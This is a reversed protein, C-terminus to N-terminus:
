VSHELQDSDTTLLTQAIVQLQPMIKDEAEKKLSAASRYDKRMGVHALNNRLDSLQGWLKSIEQHNALTQFSQDFKSPGHPIKKQLLALGNNLAFRVQKRDELLHHNDLYYSTMSILWEGALTMAQVIQGRKMYWDIMQFQLWLNQTLKETDLNDALSFQGYGDLLQDAILAFPKARQDIGTDAQKFIAEMQEALTLTELPRALAIAQSIEAIIKAIQELQKALPRVTPNQAKETGPIANNLLDALPAGDGVKVFRDTAAIWDLLSLMPLLDYTPAPQDKANPDFAGYVLGEVQVQRVTRLYSIALLAIVPLSRFSHTLDFVVRDGHNLCNTIKDFIIWNDEPAHSEPIDFIPELKVKNGIREQLAEWNSRTANRPAQTAVTKTLLVYLTDVDYFDLLAEQFFPTTSTQAPNSPHIYTVEQYSNFGLFSIIKM